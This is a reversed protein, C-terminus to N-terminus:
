PCSCIPHRVKIPISRSNWTAAFSESPRRYPTENRRLPWLNAITEVSRPLSKASSPSTLTLRLTRVIVFRPTLSVVFSSCWSRSPQSILLEERKGLLTLYLEEKIGQVRAINDIYLQGGPVQRMKENARQGVAQVTGIKQQIAGIYTALLQNLNSKLAGLETQLDRVIPNNTTGTEKYKDLKLVLENFRGITTKINEDEINITVPFLRNEANSNTFQMLYQAHSIQAQLREVEESSEISTTLYSQGYDQLNLVQNESKFRAIQSEKAGLESDLQTIRTNIYESTQQIISKKELITNDNYVAIMENLIDAARQPNTDNLSLNVIGDTQSNREVVVRNRYMDAVDVINRHNVFIPNDYYLERLAWTPKVVVRGLSTTVTDNFHGSIPEYGDIEVVFTSDASLTLALSAYDTEKIDLLKVNVPSEKYLDKFRKVLKTKYHYQMGLNLRKAVELMPTESCIVVIEDNIANMSIAVRRNTINELMSAGNDLRNRTVSNIKIRAHSEYIRDSRDAIFYAVLGGILACLLIWHINRFLTLVIDKASLSNANKKELFSLDTEQPSTSM